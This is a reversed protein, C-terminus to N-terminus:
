LSQLVSIAKELQEDQTTDSNDSVEYDPKLGVENVWNGKPTLWKAITIHLGVGNEIEEPEQITGKGFSKEGVLPTKNNDRLAGSLIESASASGGNILVVLKRNKLRGLKEIKYETKDKATQEVVVVKGQDMFDAGLDIAGKM